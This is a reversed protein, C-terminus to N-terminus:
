TWFRRQPTRWARGRSDDQVLMWEDVDLQGTLYALQQARPWKAAKLIANRLSEKDNKWAGQLELNELGWWALQALATWGPLAASLQEEKKLLRKATRETASAPTFETM